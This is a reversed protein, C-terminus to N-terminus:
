LKSTQKNSCTPDPLTSYRTYGESVLNLPGLPAINKFAAVKEPELCLAVANKRM